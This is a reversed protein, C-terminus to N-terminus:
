RAGKKIESFKKPKWHLDRDVEVFGVKISKLEDLSIYGWEAMEWDNNLVAYGFFSRENPDYEAIYWDSGGLFFHMRIIKDDAKIRETSGMKPLANLMKDSPSNWM